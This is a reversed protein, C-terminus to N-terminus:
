VFLSNFHPKSFSLFGNEMWVKDGDLLQLLAAIAESSAKRKFERISILRNTSKLKDKVGLAEYVVSLVVKLDQDKEVEEKHELLISAIVEISNM